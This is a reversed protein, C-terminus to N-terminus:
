LEFGKMWGALREEPTANPYSHYPNMQHAPCETCQYPTVQQFGVGIDVYEAETRAGCFPCCDAM